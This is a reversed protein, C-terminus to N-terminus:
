YMKLQLIYINEMKWAKLKKRYMTCIDKWVINLVYTFKKGKEMMKM